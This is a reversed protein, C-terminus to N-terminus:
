QIKSMFLELEENVNRSEMLLNNTFKKRLSADEILELIKNAIDEPQMECYLGDVRDTLQEMNGDCKTIVMPRALIKAEEIAISKGEFRSPQVYIDANAVYPYPNNKRGLIVFRDAVGLTRAQAMLEARLEGDGVVFWKVDVGKKVLQALADVAFDYGKQYNLRGVTVLKISDCSNWEECEKIESYDVAGRKVAAADIINHFVSVKDQYQPYYEVFSKKVEDSVCYIDNIKDYCNHDLKSNYGTLEYSIHVFSCKRKAKVHDAVYYTAGGELYAIACDYETDTRYTSDSLTKWLLKDKKLGGHGLMYIANSFLYGFNRLIFGQGLLAMLVRKTMARAGEKSHIPAKVFSDKDGLLNVNSPIRDILEGQNMLVMLDIDYEDEPIASLMGLLAVEAGALGLTNMVFLLKKKM